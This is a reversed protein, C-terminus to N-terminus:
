PVVKLRNGDNPDRWVTGSPQQYATTPLNKMVIKPADGVLTYDVNIKDHLTSLCLWSCNNFPGTIGLFQLTENQITISSYGARGVSWDYSNPTLISGSNISPKITIDNIGVRSLAPPAQVVIYSGIYEPSNPLIITDSSGYDAMIYLNNKLVWGGESSSYVADSESRAKFPYRIYGSFTGSTANIEGSFKATGTVGDLMINPVFDPKDFEDSASGNRTGAQSIIKGDKHIMGGIHAYNALLLDTAVSEFQAGFPKWYDSSSSPERGSFIGADTRAVYYLEENTTPNKYKVIDTRTPIGYYIEERDYDGRYTPAPSSGDAGTFGLFPAPDSWTGAVILFSPGRGRKEIFFVINALVM